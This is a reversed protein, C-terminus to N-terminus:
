TSCKWPPYNDPAGYLAKFESASFVDAVLARLDAWQRAIARLQEDSAKSQLAEKYASLISGIADRAERGMPSGSELVRGEVNVAGPPQTVVKELADFLGDAARDVASVSAGVALDATM